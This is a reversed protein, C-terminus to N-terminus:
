AAVSFGGGGFEARLCGGRPFGCGLFSSAAFAVLDDVFLFLDCLAAVLESVADFGVAEVRVVVVESSLEPFGAIWFEFAVFERAFVEGTIVSSFDDLFDSVVFCCLVGAVVVGGVHCLCLCGGSSLFGDILAVSEDGAAFFYGAGESAVDGVFVSVVWGGGCGFSLVGADCEDFAAVGFEDIGNGSSGVGIM